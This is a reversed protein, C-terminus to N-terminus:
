RQGLSLAEASEGLEAVSQPARKSRMDREPSEDEESLTGRGKPSSTTSSM